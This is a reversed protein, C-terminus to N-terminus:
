VRCTGDNSAQENSVGKENKNYWDVMSKAENECDKRGYYGGCCEEVEELVPEGDEDYEKIKSIRYVWVDGELYQNWLDLVMRARQESTRTETDNVCAALHAMPTDGHPVLVWICGDVRDWQETLRLRGSGGGYDIFEVGFIEYRELEHKAMHDQTSKWSSYAEIAEEWEWWDVGDTEKWEDPPEASGYATTWPEEGWPMHGRAEDKDYHKRGFRYNRFNVEGLFEQDDGFDEPSQPDEDPDIEIWYGKYEFSEYAM